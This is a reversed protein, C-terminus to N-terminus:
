GVRTFHLHSPRDFLFGALGRHDVSEFGKIVPFSYISNRLSATLRKCSHTKVEYLTSLLDLATDESMVHSLVSTNTSVLHQFIVCSLPGSYVSHVSTGLSM